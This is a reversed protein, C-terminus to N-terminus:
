RAAELQELCEILRGVARDENDITGSCIAAKDNLNGYSGVIDDPAAIPAHPEHFWVNAFFPGSADRQKMWNMAEDAVLQCAYGQQKRIPVANRIVNEPNKHSPNANNWTALWYHQWGITLVM